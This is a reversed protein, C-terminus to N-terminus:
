SVALGAPLHRPCILPPQDGVPAGNFVTEARATLAKRHAEGATTGTVAFWAVSDIQNTRGSLPGGVKKNVRHRTTGPAFTLDRFEIVGAPPMVAMDVAHRLPPGLQALEPEEGCALDALYRGFPVGFADSALAIAGIGAFRLNFDILEIPGSDPVMVEIHTAGDVVNLTQHFRACAEVIEEQRPHAYPFFLGQEAVPDAALLYRGTLGVHQIRGAHVLSEVSLLEGQAREELVFEGHATVYDHMLENPIKATRVTEAAARLEELSGVVFCLVSATGNAPKLVAPGDFRWTDWTLAESLTTHGLRTLGEAHLRRRVWAKDLVHLTDEVTNHPLGLRDRLEIAYRQTPEFAAHVGVVDNGREVDRVLRRVTDQDSWGAVPVYEDIIGDRVAFPGSTRLPDHNLAVTRLGRSKAEEAVLVQQGQMEFLVFTPTM